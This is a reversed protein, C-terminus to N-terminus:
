TASAVFYASYQVTWMTVQSCQTLAPDEYFVTANKGALQDALLTSYFTKCAQASAHFSGQTVMSCIANIGTGTATYVLGNSDTGLYSVPGICSINANALSPQLFAATILALTRLSAAPRRDALRFLNLM